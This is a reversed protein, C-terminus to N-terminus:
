LACNECIILFIPENVGNQLKGQEYNIQIFTKISTLLLCFLENRYCYAAIHPLIRCYAAIHPLIRCYVCSICSNTHIGHINVGTTFKSIGKTCKMMTHGVRISILQLACYNYIICMLKIIYHRSNNHRSYSSTLVM